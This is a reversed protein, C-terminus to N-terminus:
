VPRVAPGALRGLDLQDDVELGGLDDAESHRRREDCQASSTISHLQQQPAHTEKHCKESM